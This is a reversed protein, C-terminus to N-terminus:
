QEGRSSRQRVPLVLRCERGDTAALLHTFLLVDVAKKMWAFKGCYAEGCAYIAIKATEDENIWTGVVSQPSVEAAGFPAFALLWFLTASFIPRIM